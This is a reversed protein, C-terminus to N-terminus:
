STTATLAHAKPTLTKIKKGGLVVNGKYKSPYVNALTSYIM